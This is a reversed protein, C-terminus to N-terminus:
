YLVKPVLTIFLGNDGGERVPGLSSLVLLTLFQEPANGLIKQLLESHVLFPLFIINKSFFIQRKARISFHTM